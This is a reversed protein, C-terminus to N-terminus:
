ITEASVWDTLLRWQTPKNSACVPCVQVAAQAQAMSIEPDGSYIVFEYHTAEDATGLTTLAHLGQWLVREGGGGSNSICACLWRSTFLSGLLRTM